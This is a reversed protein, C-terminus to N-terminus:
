LDTGSLGKCSECRISQATLKSSRICGTNEPCARSATAEVRCLLDRKRFAISNRRSTGHHGAPLRRLGGCARQRGPLAADDGRDRADAAQIAGLEDEALHERDQPPSSPAAPMLIRRADRCNMIREPIRWQCLHSFEFIRENESFRRWSRWLPM